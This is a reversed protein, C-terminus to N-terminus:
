AKQAVPRASKIKLIHPQWSYGGDDDVDFHVLGYHIIGSCQRSGYKSGPGQLAPLTMALFDDSGCFDYFHVHSRLIVDARPAEDREAWLQNWLHERAIATHRGHPVQSSGVKHKVDFVCGNVDIWEHGGITADVKSAVISEMDDGDASVHYPTGYTCIIKSAKAELICMAAMDAQQQMDSTVLETGGSRTGKGDIMDGNVILVDIPQLSALTKSYWSWCEFQLAGRKRLYNPGVTCRYQFVPPTLGAYHGCHLDGIAVVRKM